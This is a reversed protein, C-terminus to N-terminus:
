RAIAARMGAMVEPRNIIELHDVDAVEVYRANPWARALRRSLPTLPDRSGAAIFVPITAPVTRDRSISLGGFSRMTEILAISDNAALIQASMARALSDPLGPFLWPLFHRLGVGSQLDRVWRDAERAFTVSDTHFAGAILSASEVRQPYRSAANAAILAGLSHGILHAREIQLHDLLAIVDEAMAAGYRTADRFKTSQGFGRVDYAIVRHGPTFSDALAYWDDLSRSYGHIFVIPAGSRAGADRYRLRLDGATLFQDPSSSLSIPTPSGAQETKATGERDVCALPFLALAVVLGRTTM